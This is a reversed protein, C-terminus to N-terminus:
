FIATVNCREILHGRVSPFCRPFSRLTEEIQRLQCGFKGKLNMLVSLLWLLHMEIFNQISQAFGAGYKKFAALLIWSCVMVGFLPNCIYIIDAIRKKDILDDNM